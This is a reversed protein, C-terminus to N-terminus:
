INFAIIEAEKECVKGLEAKWHNRKDGCRCASHIRQKGPNVPGNQVADFRHLPSAVTGPQDSNWPQNWKKICKLKYLDAVSHNRSHDDNYSGNGAM